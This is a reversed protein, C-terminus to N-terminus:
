NGVYWCHSFYYSFTWTSCKNAKQLNWYSLVNVGSPNESVPVKSTKLYDCRESDLIKSIIRRYPDSKNWYTWFITIFCCCNRERKLYNYKFHDNYIRGLIVFISTMRILLTLFTIFLWKAGANPYVNGIKLFSNIWKIGSDRDVLPM